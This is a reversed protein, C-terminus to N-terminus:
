YKVGIRFYVRANADNLTQTTIGDNGVERAYAISGDLWQRYKFGVEFGIDVVSQDGTAQGLKPLEFATSGTEIFVKPRLDVGKLYPAALTTETYARFLYGSDGTAVGPLATTLNGQGGIVWQQQEPLADKSYQGSLELGSTLNPNWGISTTGPQWYLKLASVGRFLTYGQNAHIPFTTKEDDGLGKRVTGGIEVNWLHDIFTFNRAYSTAAELSFYKERQYEFAATTATSDIEGKKDNYDLKGQATWRSDFSAFIPYLYIAEVSWLRGLFPTTVSGTTSTFQYSNYRGGLGYVGFPTVRNWSLNQEHYDGGAATGVNPLGERWFLRFEDGYNSATKLGLDLFYRSAFRNGPNGFDINIQTPDHKKVNKELDLVQGGNGDPEFVPTIDYGARDALMSALSRRRELDSDRLPKAAELGEFYPQLADDARVASVEGPQVVVYVENGSAVYLVQAAPYGAAYAAGAINRIANSITDAGAVAKNIAAEDLINAAAVHLQYNQYAVVVGASAQPQLQEVTGLQPTVPPPLAISM